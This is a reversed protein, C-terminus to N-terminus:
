KGEFWDQWSKLNDAWSFFINLSGYKRVLEDVNETYDPNTTMELIIREKTWGLKEQHDKYEAVWDVDDVIDEDKRAQLESKILHYFYTLKTDEVELLYHKVNDFVDENDFIDEYGVIEGTECVSEGIYLCGGCAEVTFSVDSGNKCKPCYTFYGM